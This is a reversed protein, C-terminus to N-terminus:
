EKENNRLVLCAKAMSLDGVDDIDLASIWNIPHFRHGPLYFSKHSLFDNRKALWIAGTPCYLKPLDQSRLNNKNPFLYSSSGDDDLKVAWYPNMWGFSTCSLQAPATSNDFEFIAEKIDQSTRLPCNAMLQAIVSFELGWYTEAQLFASYTAESSTSLDDFSEKRLFPVEAKYNLAINAIKEDDTSVLVKDFENSNIAAEITWAIMPKEGFEIINKQPLRKSGSRALIIAIRHQTVVLDM